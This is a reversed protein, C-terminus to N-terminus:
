FNSFGWFAVVFVLAFSKLNRKSRRIQELANLQQQTLTHPYASKHQKSCASSSIELSTTWSSGSFNALNADAWYTPSRPCNTVCWHHCNPEPHPGGAPLSDWTPEWSKIPEQPNFNVCIASVPKWWFKTKAGLRLIQCFQGQQHCDVLVASTRIPSSHSEKILTRHATDTNSYAQAWKNSSRHPNGHEQWLCGVLVSSRRVNPDKPTGHHGLATSGKLTMIVGLWPGILNKNSSSGGSSWDTKM